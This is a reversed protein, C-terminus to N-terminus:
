ASHGRGGRVREEDLVAADQTRTAEVDDLDCQRLPAYAFLHAMNMNARGVDDIRRGLVDPMEDCHRLFQRLPRSGCQDVRRIPLRARRLRAASSAYDMIAQSTAGGKNVM